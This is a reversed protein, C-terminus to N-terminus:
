CKWVEDLFIGSDRKMLLAFSKMPRRVMGIKRGELWTRGGGNRPIFRQLFGGSRDPFRVGIDRIRVDRVGTGM